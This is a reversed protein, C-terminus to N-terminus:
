EYHVLIKRGRLPQAPRANEGILSVFNEIQRGSIMLPKAMVFWKVGESCPPTTLSGEYHYFSRAVPLLQMPSISVERQRDNPSQPLHEFIDKLVQNTKGEEFFVGVVALGGAKNKHVLHAELPYPINDEKHESPSHFHIQLLDYQEHDPLTLVNGPDLNIQITHGNNIVFGFTKKYNFQLSHLDESEAAFELNIPSQKEGSACIAYNEDLESWRGPGENGSYAWHPHHNASTLKNEKHSSDASAEVPDIKHEEEASTTSGHEEAKNHGQGGGVSGHEEAVPSEAHADHASAGHDSSGEPSSTEHDEGSLQASQHADHPPIPTGNKAKMYSFVFLGVHLSGSIALAIIWAGFQSVRLRM